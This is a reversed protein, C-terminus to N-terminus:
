IAVTSNLQSQLRFESRSVIQRGTRLFLDENGLEFYGEFARRHMRAQRRHKNQKLM